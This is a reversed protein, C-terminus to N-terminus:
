ERMGRSPGRPAVCTFCVPPGCLHLVRTPWVATAHRRLVARQQRLLRSHFHNSFADFRPFLQLKQLTDTAHSILTIKEALWHLQFLEFIGDQRSFFEALM